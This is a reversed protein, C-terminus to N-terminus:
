KRQCIWRQHLTDQYAKRTSRSYASKSDKSLINVKTDKPTNNLGIKVSGELSLEVLKIFNEIGLELTTIVIKIAAVWEDILKEITPFDIVDLNLVISYSHLLKLM